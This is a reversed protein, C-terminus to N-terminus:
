IISGTWEVNSGGQACNERGNFLLTIVYINTSRAEGFEVAAVLEFLFSVRCQDAVVFM